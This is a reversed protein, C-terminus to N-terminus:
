SDRHEDILERMSRGALIHDAYENATVEISPFCEEFSDEFWYDPSNDDDPFAEYYILM